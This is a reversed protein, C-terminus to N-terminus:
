SQPASQSCPRLCNCCVCRQAQKQFARRGPEIKMCSLVAGAFWIRQETMSFGTGAVARAAQTEESPEENGDEELNTSCIRELFMVSGARQAEERMSQSGRKGSGPHTRASPRCDAPEFHRSTRESPCAFPFPTNDALEWICATALSQLRLRSSTLMRTLADFLANTMYRQNTELM